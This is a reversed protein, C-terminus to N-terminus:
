REVYDHTARHAYFSWFGVLILAVILTFGFYFRPEKLVIAIQYPLFYAVTISLAGSIITFVGIMHEHYKSFWPIVLSVAGICVIFIVLLDGTPDVQAYLGRGLRYTAARMPLWCFWCLIVVSLSLLSQRYSEGLQLGAIHVGSFFVALCLGTLASFILLTFSLQYWFRTESPDIERNRIRKLQLFDTYKEKDKKQQILLKIKDEKKLTSVYNNDALLSQIDPLYYFINPWKTSSSWRVKKAVFHSRFDGSEDFVEVEASNKTTPAVEWIAISKQSFEIYCAAATFFVTLVAPWGALAKNKLGAHPLHSRLFQIYDSCPRALGALIIPLFTLQFL